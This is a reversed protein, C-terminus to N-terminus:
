MGLDVTKGDIKVLNEHQAKKVNHDFIGEFNRNEETQIKLIVRAMKVWKELVLVVTCRNIQHLDFHFKVLNEAHQVYLLFYNLLVHVTEQDKIKVVELSQDIVEAELIEEGKRLAVAVEKGLAVM